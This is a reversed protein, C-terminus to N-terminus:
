EYGSLLWYLVFFFLNLSAAVLLSIKRSYNSLFFVDLGQKLTYFLLAALTYVSVLSEEVLFPRFAIRLTIFILLSFTTM